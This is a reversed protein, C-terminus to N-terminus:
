LFKTKIFLNLFIFLLIKTFNIANLRKASSSSPGSIPNPITSVPEVVIELVEYTFKRNGAVRYDDGIISLSNVTKNLQDAVKEASYNPDDPNVNLTM